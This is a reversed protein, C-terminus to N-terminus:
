RPVIKVDCRRRCTPSAEGFRIEWKIETANGILSPYIKVHDKLIYFTLWDAPLDFHGNIKSNRSKAPKQLVPSLAHLYWLRASRATFLSITWFRSTFARREKQQDTFGSFFLFFVENLLVLMKLLSILFIQYSKQTMHSQLSYYCGILISSQSASFFVNTCNYLFVSIWNSYM